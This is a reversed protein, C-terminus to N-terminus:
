PKPQLCPPNSRNELLLDHLHLVALKCGLIGTNHTMQLTQLSHSQSNKMAPGFSPAFLARQILKSVRRVQTIKDIKRLFIRDTFTPVFKMANLYRIANIHYCARPGYPESYPQGAILVQAFSSTRGWVEGSNMAGFPSRNVIRLALSSMEQSLQPRNM